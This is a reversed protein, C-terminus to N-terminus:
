GGLEPDTPALDFSRPVPSEPHFEAVHQSAPDKKKGGRRVAVAFRGLRRDVAIQDCKMQLSWWVGGTVLNWVTLHGETVGILFKSATFRVLELPVSGPTHLENLLKADTPNWLTVTGGFAAALLSGDFSVAVDSCPRPTYTGVYRCRWSHPDRPTSGPQRSWTKFTHDGSATVFFPQTPHAALATVPGGHVSDVCTDEVFRQVSPDLRWVKLRADQGSRTEVTALWRGDGSFCAKDVVTETVQRDHTRSVYARDVVAAACTLWRAVAAPATPPRPHMPALLM